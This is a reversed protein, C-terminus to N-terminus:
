KKKNSARYYAAQVSKMSSYKSFRGVNKGAEYCAVWDMKVGHQKRYDDVFQWDNLNSTREKVTSDSASSSVIAYKTRLEEM